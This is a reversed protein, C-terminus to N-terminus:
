EIDQNAGGTRFKARLKNLTQEAMDAREDAEELAHQTKRWKALNAGAVEESEELQSKVVKTQAAATDAQAQLRAQQRKDDEVTSELDKVRREVKRINKTTESHRRQENDLEVELERVRQELKQIMRKGGKLANAEAEDLRAQLEKVQSEMTRRMKEISGAHEQEQRLEEAIRAADSMAKKAAEEAARLEHSQDELDVQMAQCDNELKRKSSSLSTNQASLESVRDAVEHLEAEAAKRAREGSELQTRMEEVEGSLLNCRREASQWQEGM